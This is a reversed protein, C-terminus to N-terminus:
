FVLENVAQFFMAPQINHFHFVVTRKESGDGDVNAPEGNTAMADGGSLAPLSRRQNFVLIM